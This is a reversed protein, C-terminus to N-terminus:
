PLGQRILELVEALAKQYRSGERSTVGRLEQVIAAPDKGALFLGAARRAEAPATKGRGPASTAPGDTAVNPSSPPSPAADSGGGEFSKETATEHGGQPGSLLRAVRRVDEATTNPIRIISTAGSTRWLVAQGTELREVTAAEDTPLLLRAQSRKMRHCVVSAFSDRLESTTRAATWIQGSASLYVFRKRYEQAIRELLEALDPGIDSRGLLGTLEDLWLIVPTRDASKGKIRAEGIDAVYRVLDLIARPESAPEALYVARLPDLTAALSDDAAGAHPDAIAFRAGHLATQAAFFRQTTTKGTGPLGATITAYLDLWSGALEKSGEYGLILPNGRGVRGRDLLQALTPAEGEEAEATDGPLIAPGPLATRSLNPSYTVHPAYTLQAPAQGPQHVARLGEVQQRLRAIEHTLALVEGGELQPRTVPFQGHADPRVLPTRRQRYADIVLFGVGGAIATMLGYGVLELGLDLGQRRQEQELQWRRRELELSQRQQEYYARDERMAQFSPDFAFTLAFALLALALLAIAAAGIARM